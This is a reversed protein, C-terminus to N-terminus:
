WKAPNPPWCEWPEPKRDRHHIQAHAYKTVALLNDLANNERNRDIHHVEIDPDLVRKGGLEILFPHTPAQGAMAEFIVRRHEWRAKEGDFSKRKERVYGCKMRYKGGSWRWHKEAQQKESCEMRWSQSAGQCARSCFRATDVRTKTVRFETGCTECRKFYRTRQDPTANTRGKVTARYCGLSCYDNQSRAQDSKKREFLEGCVACTLTQRGAATKCERCCYRVAEARRPSVTFTKGCHWCVKDVPM